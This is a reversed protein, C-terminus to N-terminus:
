YLKSANRSLKKEIHKTLTWTTCGYLLLSVVTAQFFNCKIKDFLNSKWIISLKNIATWAKALSMNIDSKTSSISSGLYTFKDVLKLSGGNLTSINGKQNFCMYEMKDTNMHLGIGGAAQELHHLLSEAQTLTNVLLVICRQLRCGHYNTHPIMQKKGKKKQTFGNEKM